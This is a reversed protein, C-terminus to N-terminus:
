LAQQISGPIYKHCHEFSFSLPWQGVVTKLRCTDPLERVMLPSIYIKDELLVRLAPVLESGLDDKIMYGDAGSLLTHCLIVPSMQSTLMLIKFSYHMQRIKRLADLGSLGPMSLDLILIDPAIGQSLLNLLSFGDAAEGAVQFEQTQELIATLGSRIFAHDDALIIQYIKGL